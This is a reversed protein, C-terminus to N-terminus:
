PLACPLEPSPVTNRNAQRTLAIVDPDYASIEDVIRPIRTGGRKQINWALLRAM